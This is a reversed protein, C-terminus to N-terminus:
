ISASELVKLLFDRDWGAKLRKRRLGMKSPESRLLNLAIKRLISFNEAGNELRIRSQDENFAVDLVWHVQNEIGWHGRVANALKEADMELSSIFYACEYSMKGKLTREREIMGISALNPWDKEGKWQGVESSSWARRIEERGHGTEQTEFYDLTGEAMREEVKDLAEEFQKSLHNQLTRQNGKASLVYDANQEIIAKATEKQCHMADLTVICGALTLSKLLEPVAPIENSKDDVKIQGLVVRNESAWASVMHIAAKDSSSDYSRRLKKGDLAVVQEGMEGVVGRMWAIFCAEFQKSSIVSFVRSFTDHSPIGNPLELFSEFWSQNTNGFDEIETWHDAGCIVACIAIVIMDELQHRVKGSLRPDTITFYQFLESPKSSM